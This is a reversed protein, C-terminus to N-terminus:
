WNRWAIGWFPTTATSRSRSLPARLLSPSSAARSPLGCSAARWCTATPSASSRCCCRTKCSRGPSSHWAIDFYRRLPSAPGNELVDNWWANDNRPSAWTTPCSTSSKGSATSTAAARGLRRLRGRHRDGPQARRPRHHRLRAHQGAPGSTRRPTVTRSAWTRLYPTIRAADRFTFGAHFQLRYMTGPLNRHASVTQLTHDWVREVQEPTLATSEM